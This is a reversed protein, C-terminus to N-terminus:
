SVVLHDALDKASHLSCNPNVSWHKNEKKRGLEWNECFTVRLLSFVVVWETRDQHGHLIPNSFWKNNPLHCHPIVKKPNWIWWYLTPWHGSRKVIVWTFTICKMESFVGWFSVHVLGRILLSSVWSAGPPNMGVRSQLCWLRAFVPSTNFYNDNGFGLMMPKDDCTVLEYIYIQIYIIQYSIINYSM